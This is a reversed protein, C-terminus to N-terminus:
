PSNLFYNAQPIRKKTHIKGDKFTFIDCGEANVKSGDPNTGTFLWHSLGNNDSAFCGLSKWHADTINNTWVGEFAAKITANGELKNGFNNPGILTYFVCDETMMSSLAEADHRNFAEGFDEMLKVFDTM